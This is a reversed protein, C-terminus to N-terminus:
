RPSSASVALSWDLLHGETSSLTVSHLLCYLLVAQRTISLDDIKNEEFLWIKEHNGLCKREFLKIKIRPM